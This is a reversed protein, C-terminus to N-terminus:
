RKKKILTVFGFVMLCLSGPEPIPLLVVGYPDAECAFLTETETGDLNSRMMSDYKGDSWYLKGVEIDLALSTPAIFSGFIDPSIIDELGTGDLNARQIKHNSGRDIWYMKGADLDLAIDMLAPALEGTLSVIDEIETGVFNSRQIKDTRNDTWYIKENAVDLALGLPRYDATTLIIEKASGDLNAHQIVHSTGWTTWYIKDNQNDIAVDRPNIPFLDIIDEINSGDLNSRQIKFADFDTWYMKNGTFDFEIGGPSDLGTIVNEMGTGDPNACQIKGTESLAWYIKRPAAYSTLPLYFLTLFLILLILMKKM